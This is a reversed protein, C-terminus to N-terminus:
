KKRRKIKVKKDIKKQRQKDEWEKSLNRPVAPGAFYNQGHLRVLNELAAKKDQIANVAGWAMNYEYQADHYEKQAEKFDPHVAIAAQIASETVKPIEFDDPNNRIEKDLEAKVMDINAKAEDVAFSAKAKIASYKLTLKAQELWEIDLANEDITVDKEYENM